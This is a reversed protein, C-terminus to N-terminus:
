RSPPATGRRDLPYPTALRALAGKYREVASPTPIGEKLLEPHVIDPGPVSDIM